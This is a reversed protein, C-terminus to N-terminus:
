WTPLFRLKGATGLSNTTGVPSLRQPRRLQAVAEATQQTPQTSVAVGKLRKTKEEDVQGDHNNAHNSRRKKGVSSTTNLTALNQKPKTIKKWTAKHQAHPDETQVRPSALPSKVTATTKGYTVPM